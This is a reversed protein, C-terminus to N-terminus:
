RQSGCIRNRAKAVKVAKLTVLGHQDTTITGSQAVRNDALSTNTWKLTQGPRPKFSKCHRPTIDVTCADEPCSAILWVTIEWRDKADVADKDGWLLWANIGGYYDGDAPDGNGPNDDLSCNSFAPLTTDWRMENFAQMLEHPPGLSWTAVFPQRARLLGRWGRPDDQWGFESTHGSDKGTASICVLFPIDRDPYTNVYEAVSYMKWADEGSATKIGQPGLVSPMSPGGPAFRIDYGATYTGFQMRTFIEPHRLGFHLLSGVIKSRDIQHRSMIWKIMFDTYREPFYDVKCETMGRLTGRGENYFLTPLWDLQCKPEITVADSRPLNLEGRLNFDGSISGIVLPCPEKRKEGIAVAVRFAQSPLHYYPPAGWYQYWYETADDKYRDEQVWQLVPQPTAPTEVVPAALSNADAIQSLNETGAIAITVAYYAPHRQGADRVTHVYLGEGPTLAKGKDTCLTPIPSSPEEWQDLYEGKFHIQYVEADYGSLPEVEAVREANHINAATIREAHRYLRYTVPPVDRVRKLDRIGQFGSPKDRLGLGQLNRLARLTIAPHNPMDYAGQGPGDALKDGRESFKGLWIVEHPKPRFAAHETWVIFTQGDHHAVRLGTAQEPLGKAEGDFVVELFTQPALLREFQAVALGLNREPSAVWLRVAETADFSRYWPAELKLPEGRSADGDAGEAVLIRAPETPQVGRQTFCFLSAHHVTAGKPIASLDFVLRPGAKGQVIKLTGPHTCPADKGGWREGVLGAACPQAFGWLALLVWKM